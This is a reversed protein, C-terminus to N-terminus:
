AAKGHVIIEGPTSPRRRAPTQPNKQPPLVPMSRSVQPTLGGPAGSMVLRSMSDSRNLGATGASLGARGVTVVQPLAPQAAGAPGRLVPRREVTTGPLWTTGNSSPPGGTVRLAADPSRVPQAAVQASAQPTSQRQPARQVSPTERESQANIQLSMQTMTVACPAAREVAPPGAVHVSAAVAVPVAAKRVPGFDALIHEGSYSNQVRLSLDAGADAHKPPSRSRRCSAPSQQPSTQRQQGSSSLLDTAPSAVLGLLSRPSESRREVPLHGSDRLYRTGTPSGRRVELSKQRRVEPSRQRAEPFCPQLGVPLEQWLPESSQRQVHRQVTEHCTGVFVIPEGNTVLQRIAPSQHWLAASTSPAPSPSRGPGTGRALLGPWTSAAGTSFNRAAGM